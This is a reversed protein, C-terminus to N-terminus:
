TILKAMLQACFLIKRDTLTFTNVHKLDLYPFQLQLKQQHKLNHAKM